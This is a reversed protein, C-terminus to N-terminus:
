TIGHKQLETIYYAHQYQWRQNSHFILGTLDSFKEFAKELMRQIQKLNPSMSMDYSIIVNINIDLIPSIYCKGWTFNYRSIDTTWKQLPATTSFDRNYMDCYLPYM